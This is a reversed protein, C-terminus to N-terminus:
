TTNIKSFGWNKTKISGRIKNPSSGMANITGEMMKKPLIEFMEKIVLADCKKYIEIEKECENYEKKFQEHFQHDDIIGSECERHLELFKTHFQPMELDKRGVGEQFQALMLFTNAIAKNYEDSNTKKVSLRCLADIIREKPHPLKSVDYIKEIRHHKSIFSGYDSVIEEDTKNYQIMADVYRKANNWKSNKETLEAKPKSYENYIFCMVFVPILPFLMLCLGTATGSGEASKLIQKTWFSDYYIQLKKSTRQYWEVDEKSINFDSLKPEKM